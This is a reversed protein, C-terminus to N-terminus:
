SDESVVLVPKEVAAPAAEVPVTYDAPPIGTPRWFGLLQFVIALLITNVTGILKKLVACTAGPPFFLKRFEESQYYDSQDQIYWLYSPPPPAPPSQYPPGEGGGEHGDHGDYGDRGDDAALSRVIPKKVLTLETILRAPVPRLPSWWPHFVQVNVLFIKMKEQNDAVVQVDIKIIPSIIRYAQYIKIIERRSNYGPNVKCIPHNFSADATFYKLIAERQLDPTPAAAIKQVVEAIELTPREM